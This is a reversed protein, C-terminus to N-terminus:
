KNQCELCQCTVSCKRGSAHCSCYKNNCFSKKCQCVLEDSKMVSHVIGTSLDESPHVEFEKAKIVSQFKTKGYKSSLVKNVASRREFNDEGNRCEVCECAENCFGFTKFCECYLKLCKSNRCRCKTKQGLSQKDFSNPFTPQDFTRESKFLNSKRRYASIYPSVENTSGFLPEKVLLNSDDDCLTNLKRMYFVKSHSKPFSIATKSGEVDQDMSKMIFKIGNIAKSSNPKLKIKEFFLKPNKSHLNPPDPFAISIADEQKHQLTPLQGKTRDIVNKSDNTEKRLFSPFGFNSLQLSRSSCFSSNDSDDKKSSVKIKIKRRAKKLGFHQHLPILKQQRQRNHCASPFIEKVM